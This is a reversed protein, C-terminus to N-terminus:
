ESKGLIAASAHEEAEKNLKALVSPKRNNIVSDLSSKVVKPFIAEATKYDDNSLATLFEKVLAKDTM